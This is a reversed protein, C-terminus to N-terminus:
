KLFEACDEINKAIEICSNFDILNLIPMLIFWLIAAMMYYLFPNDFQFFSDSNKISLPYYDIPPLYPRSEGAPEFNDNLRNGVANHCAYWWNTRVLGGGMHKYIKWALKEREKKSLEPRRSKLVEDRVELVALPPVKLRGTAKEKLYMAYGVTGETCGNFSKKM